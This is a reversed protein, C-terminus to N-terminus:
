PAAPKPPEPPREKLAPMAQKALKRQQRQAQARKRERAFERGELYWIIFDRISRIGMILLYLVIILPLVFLWPSM